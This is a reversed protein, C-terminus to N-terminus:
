VPGTLWGPSRDLRRQLIQERLAREREGCASIARRIEDAVRKYLALRPKQDFYPSCDVPPGYVVVIPTEYRGAPKSWTRRVEGLLDNSLGNVFVPIINPQVRMVLQGVGPQAPLLTYPDTEKNRRGEPHFGVVSGPQQLFSQLRELSRENHASRSGERFIPPYMCGAGLLLNLLLGLPNDYFFEARVPFCLRQIWPPRARILPLMAVWLDFFSRHNATLVTGRAPQLACTEDLGACYVRGAIGRYVWRSTIRDLVGFQLRKPLPRENIAGAVAVSFREVPGLEGGSENAM